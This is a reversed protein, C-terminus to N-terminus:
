SATQYVACSLVSSVTPVATPQVPSSSLLFSPLRTMTPIVTPTTPVRSPVRTLTPTITTPVATPQIPSSSSVFSPLLTITPVVTPTTPVRSPVRILTPTVTTPLLSPPLSPSDSGPIKTCVALFKGCFASDSSSCSYTPGDVPCGCTGGANQGRCYDTSIPDWANTQPDGLWSYTKGTEGVTTSDCKPYSKSSCFGYFGYEGIRDTIKWYYGDATQANCAVRSSRLKGSQYNVCSTGCCVKICCFLFLSKLARLNM